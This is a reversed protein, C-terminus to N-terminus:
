APSRGTARAGAVALVQEHEAREDSPRRSGPCGTERRVARDEQQGLHDARDSEPATAETPKETTLSRTAGAGARPRTILKQPRDWPRPVSAPVSSPLRSPECRM